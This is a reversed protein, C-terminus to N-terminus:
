LRTQNEIFFDIEVDPTHQQNRWIQAENKEQVYSGSRKSKMNEKAGTEMKTIVAVQEKEGTDTKEV